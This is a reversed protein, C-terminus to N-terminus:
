KKRTINLVYELSTAIFVGSVVLVLGLALSLTFKEHFYAVGLISAWVTALYTILSSIFASTKKVVWQYLFFFFVTSVIAIVFLVLITPPTIAAIILPARTFEFISLATAAITAALFNYFTITFASYNKGVKRSIVLYFAWCVVGIVVLLNGIPTGFSLIDRTTLSGDFLIAIGVLSTALGILQKKSVREKLFVFGIIAVLIPTTLYIIQSMIISTKQIGIAFLIVNSTFVLNALFFLKKNQRPLGIKRIIAIPLIILFALAFRFLTIIIPSFEQGTFKILAANSGGIIAAVIFAILTM